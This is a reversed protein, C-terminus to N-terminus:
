KQKKKQVFIVAVVAGAVVLVVAVVILVIAWVPLGASGEVTITYTVAAEEGQFVRVLTDADLVASTKTLQNSEKDYIKITYGDMIVLANALDGLTAGKKVTITQWNKDVVVSEDKSSLPYIKAATTTTTIPTGFEDTPGNVAATTDTNDTESPVSATTTADGGAPVAATTGNAPKAPTPKAATPKAATPKTPATTAHPDKGNAKVKLSVLCAMWREYFEGGGEGSGKFYLRLYRATSPIQNSYFTALPEEQQRPRDLTMEGKKLSTTKGENPGVIIEKFDHYTGNKSDSWQVKFTGTKGYIGSWGGGGYGIYEFSTFGQKFEYTITCTDDVLEKMMVKDRQDPMSEVMPKNETFVFAEKPKAGSEIHVACAQPFTNDNYMDKFVYSDAANATFGVSLCGFLMTAPLVAAAMKKLPQWLNKM